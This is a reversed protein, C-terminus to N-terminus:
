FCLRCRINASPAGLPLCAPSPPGCESHLILHRRRESALTRSEAAASLLRRSIAVAAVVIADALVLIVDFRSLLPSPISTNTM